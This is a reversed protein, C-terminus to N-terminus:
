GRFMEKHINTIWGRVYLHIWLASEQKLTVNDFKM